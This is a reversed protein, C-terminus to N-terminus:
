SGKERVARETVRLLERLDVDPDQLKTADVPRQAKILRMSRRLDRVWNIAVAALVRSDKLYFAVFNREEM